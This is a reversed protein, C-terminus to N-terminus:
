EREGDWLRPFQADAIARQSEDWAEMALTYSAGGDVYEEPGPRGRTENVAILAARLRLAIRRVEAVNDALGSLGCKDNMGLARRVDYYFKLKAGASVPRLNHDAPM